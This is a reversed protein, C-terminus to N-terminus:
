PRGLALAGVLLALALWQLVKTLTPARRCAGALAVAISM